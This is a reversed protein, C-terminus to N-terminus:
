RPKMKKMCQKWYSFFSPYYGTVEFITERDEGIGTYHSFLPHKKFMFDSAGYQQLESFEGVFIQINNINEALKLFFRMTTEKIPFNLFHSPELLLIRNADLDNKWDPDLNYFNYLLTPKVPDVVIHTKAPLTTHLFLDAEEKLAEPIAIHPLEEYSCDLYTEEQDTFTYKNINEQNAYYKKNSNTGSVWQWSLANSAIDADLLHYYMWKSPMLWHTRAINCVVSATYMRVHNHIYGTTYLEKIGKDVAEIGTTAEIIAKPIKYSCINQQQYRLDMHFAHPQHILVQQWYDRWTLEQIFKESQQFTFRDLVSQAIFKTSIVGRSIYPSLKTVAGTILNRTQAYQVPDISNVASLIEEYKAPFIM